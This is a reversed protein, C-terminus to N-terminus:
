GWKPPRPNIKGSTVSLEQFKTFVKELIKRKLSIAKGSAAMNTYSCFHFIKLINGVSNKIKINYLKMQVM